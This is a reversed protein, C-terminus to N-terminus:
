DQKNLGKADESRASREKRSSFKQTLKWLLKVGGGGANERM